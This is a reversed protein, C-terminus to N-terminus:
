NSAQYLYKDPTVGSAYQNQDDRIKLDGLAFLNFIMKPEMIVLGYCSYILFKTCMSMQLGALYSAKAAPM